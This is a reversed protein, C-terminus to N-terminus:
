SGMSELISLHPAIAEFGNSREWKGALDFEYIRHCVGWLFALEIEGMKLPRLAFSFNFANTKCGKGNGPASFFFRQKRACFFTLRCFHHVNSSLPFDPVHKEFFFCFCFIKLKLFCLFLLRVSTNPGAFDCAM